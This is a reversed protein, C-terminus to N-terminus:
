GEELVVERTTSTEGLETEFRVELTTEQGYLTDLEDGEFPIPIPIDYAELYGEATVILKLDYTIEGVEAGLSATITGM